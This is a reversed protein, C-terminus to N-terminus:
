LLPAIIPTDSHATSPMGSSVMRQIISHHTSLLESPIDSYVESPLLSIIKSPKLSIMISPSISNVASPEVSEMEPPNVSSLDSPLDSINITLDDSQAVSRRMSLVISSTASKELSPFYIPELSYANSPTDLTSTPPLGLSIM